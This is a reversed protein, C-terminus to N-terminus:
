TRVEETLLMRLVQDLLRVARAAQGPAWVASGQLVAELLQADLHRSLPAPAIPLIAPAVVAALTTSGVLQLRHSAPSM